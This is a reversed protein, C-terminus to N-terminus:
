IKLRVVNLPQVQSIGSVDASHEAAESCAFRFLRSPHASQVPKNTLDKMEPTSIKIVGGDLTLIELTKNRDFSNHTLM